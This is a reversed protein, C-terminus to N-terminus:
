PDDGEFNGSVSAISDPLKLAGNPGLRQKIFEYLSSEGNDSGTAYLHIDNVFRHFAGNETKRAAGPKFYDYIHYAGLVLKETPTGLSQTVINTSGGVDDIPFPANLRRWEEFQDAMLDAYNGLAALQAVLPGDRTLITSPTPLDQTKAHLQLLRVDLQGPSPQRSKVLWDRSYDDLGSLTAAMQRSQRAIAQLNRTVHGARPAGKAMSRLANCQQALKQIRLQACRECRCVQDELHEDAFPRLADKARSMAEPPGTPRLKDEPVKISWPASKTMEPFCGDADDPNGGQVQADAKGITPSHYLGTFGIRCISTLFYPFDTGQQRRGKQTKLVPLGSL